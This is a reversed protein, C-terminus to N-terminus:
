CGRFCVFYIIGELCLCGEGDLCLCDTWLDRADGWGLVVVLLLMM